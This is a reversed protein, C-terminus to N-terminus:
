KKELIELIERRKPGQLDKLEAELMKKKEETIYSDAQNM